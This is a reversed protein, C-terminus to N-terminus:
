RDMPMARNWIRSLAARPRSVSETPLLPQTPCGVKTAKLALCTALFVANAVRRQYADPHTIRSALGAYEFERFLVPFGLLMEVLAEDEEWAKSGPVGSKGLYPRPRIGHLAFRVSAVGGRVIARTDDGPLGIVMFAEPQIGADRLLDFAESVVSHDNHRKNERAWVAADDGDVGIGVSTVGYEKFREIIGPNRAEARVTCKATALFRLKLKVDFKKMANEVILLARYMEDPNQFGDLTSCYVEYDPERGGFKRVFFAVAEMEDRFAARERFQEKQAKSAACFNCNFACGQSTFICFEKKFYAEQMAHPLDRIVQGMSIEFISPFKLGAFRDLDREEGAQIVPSLHGFLRTFQEPTLRKVFEGGILIPQTFEKMRIEQGIRLVESVYPPGLCGIGIATAEQLHRSDLKHGLNEDLIEWKLGASQLRAAVALLGNPLYIHAGWPSQPQILLYM